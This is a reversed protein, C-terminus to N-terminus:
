SNIWFEEFEESDEVTGYCEATAELDVYLTKM